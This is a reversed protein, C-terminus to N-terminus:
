TLKKTQTLADVLAQISATPAEISVRIGVAQAASRTIPGLCAATIKPRLSGWDKSSFLNKFNDVTSSSTFTVWDVKGDLIQQRLLARDAVVPVTRYLALHRVRIGAALLGQPLVDRGQLARALILTQGRKVRRLLAVLLEDSNFTAPVLEAQIGHALLAQATSAGVAAIKVGKLSRADMGVDILRAFFQDVGKASSFVLWHARPTASLLKRMSADLPLAVTRVSPTELVTAGLARLSQSLKSAQERSRTVVITRGFLPRKEFWALRSRLKAVDGIVLLGPAGIGHQKMLDPLLKLTSVLVKQDSWTGRHVVAAPTDAKRGARILASCIRAAVETAMFFVLTGDLSALSRLTKASLPKGSREQGTVFVVSTALGRHTVPIGAYAPAAVGSSVGPIVEFPVGAEALALAEEGGRGFVFPDGGKLRAVRKGARGLKVLLKNTQDQTLTHKGARKGACIRKATAPALDLLTPNALFDYVLVEARELAKQGAVTILDPDGPGAGILSVMGQARSM